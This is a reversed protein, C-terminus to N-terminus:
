RHRVSYADDPRFKITKEKNPLTNNEKRTPRNGVIDSRIIETKIIQGGKVIQQSRSTVMISIM